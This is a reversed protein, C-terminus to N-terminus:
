RTQGCEDGSIQASINDYFELNGEICSGRRRRLRNYDTYGCYERHDEGDCLLMIREAKESSGQCLLEM